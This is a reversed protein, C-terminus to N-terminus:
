ETFCGTGRKKFIFNYSLGVSAVRNFSTGYTERNLLGLGYNVFLGYNKYQYELNFNFGVDLQKMETNTGGQTGANVFDIKKHIQLPWSLSTKYGKETGSIGCALYPGAGINISQKANIDITYGADVALELYNLRITVKKGDDAIYKTEDHFNGKQNYTLNGKVYWNNHLYRKAFIGAQYSSISATKILKSTATANTNNYAARAGFTYQAKIQLCSILLIVFLFLTRM